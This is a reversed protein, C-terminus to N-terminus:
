LSLITNAADTVLPEDSRNQGAEALRRTNQPNRNLGRECKGVTEPELLHM